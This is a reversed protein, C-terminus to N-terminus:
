LIANWVHQDKKFYYQLLKHLKDMLFPNYVPLILQIHGLHGPCNLGEQGCTTCRSFKEYPSVGLAPDYLGNPLPRNIQDFALPNTIEKVSLKKIENPEYFGFIIGNLRKTIQAM